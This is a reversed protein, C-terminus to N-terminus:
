ERWGAAGILKVFRCGCLERTFVDGGRNEVALLTQSEEDGVPIIMRGGARLQRFLPEPIGPAAATVLIGDYPAFEPCGLTGDGVRYHVNEIGLEHLVEQAGDALGPLREVTVVEACLQAVIATQYGSGTGIELVRENGTLALSQTMLAVIYPQSITQGAGIPLASDDYAQARLEEPVFLDRRTQEFVDLVRLDTIGHAELQRRLATQEVSTNM